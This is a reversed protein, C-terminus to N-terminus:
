KWNGIFGGDGNLIHGISTATSLGFPAMGRMDNHFAMSAHPYPHPCLAVPMAAAASLLPARGGGEGGEVKGGVVERGGVEKIRIPDPTQYAMRDKVGTGDDGDASGGGGLITARPTTPPSDQYLVAGSVHEVAKIGSSGTGNTMTTTDYLLSEASASFTLSPHQHHQHNIDNLLYDIAADLDSDNMNSNLQQQQQLHHHHPPPPPPFPVVHSGPHQQQQKQIPIPLYLQHNQYQHHYTYFPHNYYPPPSTPYREGPGGGHRLSHTAMPKQFYGGGGPMAVAAAPHHHHLPIVSGIATGGAATAPGTAMTGASATTTRIHPLHLRSHGRKGPLMRSTRSSVLCSKGNGNGNSKRNGDQYPHYYYGPPPSSHLHPPPQHYYLAAPSCDSKRKMGYVDDDDDDNTNNTDDGDDDDDGDGDCEEEEEEEEEEEKDNNDDSSSLSPPRYKSRSIKGRSGGVYRRRGILAGTSARRPVVGVTTSNNTGGKMITTTTGILSNTRKHIGANKLKILTSSRIGTDTGGAAAKRATQLKSYNRLATIIDERSLHPILPLLPAYEPEPFNLIDCPVGKCRIAM